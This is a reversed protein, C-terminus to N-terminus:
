ASSGADVVFAQGTIAAARDSVLFSVLNAVDIASTGSPLCERVRLFSVVDEPLSKTMDTQVFGPVVANVRVNRKGVERALSRTMGLLASKSAAYAAQGAVGSIASLSSVNVITGRRRVMMQPLVERCCRFAGGVNIEVLEDWDRDPTSALLSERRDGANNILADIPGISKEVDSVIEGPRKRDLLDLQYSRARKNSRSEIDRASTEDSRYTFAVTWGDTLLTEVIARGIGRSGGTVLAIM